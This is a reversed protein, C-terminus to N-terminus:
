ISNISIETGYWGMHASISIYMCVDRNYRNGYSATDNLTKSKDYKDYMKDYKLFMM